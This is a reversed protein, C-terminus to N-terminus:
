RILKVNDIGCAEDGTRFEAEVRLQQVNVILDQWNGSIMTWAAESLPVQFTQWDAQPIIGSRFEASGGPGQIQIEYTETAPGFIINLDVSVYSLYNWNGQFKQPAIAWIHGGTNNDDIRLWGGPNGGTNQWSLTGDSILTWGDAGSEFDSQAVVEPQIPEGAMLNLSVEAQGDTRDVKAESTTVYKARLSPLTPHIACILADYTSVNADLNLMEWKQSLGDAPGAIWAWKNDLFNPSPNKAWDAFTMAIPFSCAPKPWVSVNEVSIAPWNLVAYRVRVSRPRENSASPIAFVVKDGPGLVLCREYGQIKAAMAEFGQIFALTLSGPNSANKLITLDATLEPTAKLLTVAAGNVITSQVLNVTLGFGEFVDALNQIGQQQIQGMFLGDSYKGKQIALTMGAPSNWVSGDASVEVANIVWLEDEQAATVTVKTLPESTPNTIHNDGGCGSISSIVLLCTLTKLIRM